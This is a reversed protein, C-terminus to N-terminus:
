EVITGKFKKGLFVKELNKFNRGNLIIVQIKAKKALKAAEPDFPLNAGPSWKEGVIELLKDFSIKELPKARKSREPNKEFVFDIDSLNVVRKAGFNKAVLVSDFDTSRGPKWGGFVIIKKKTKIKKRPDTLVKPFAFNGFTSKVLQANLVTAFIGLWDLEKEDARFKKATKQYNRAIKGGGVVIAFRKGKKVWKLVFNKFQRLFLVDLEKPFVLSGGLSFIEIM